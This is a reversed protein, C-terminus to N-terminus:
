LKLVYHSSSSLSIAGPSFGASRGTCAGVLYSNVILRLVAFARPMSIGDVRSARASSTMSHPPLLEEHPETLISLSSGRGPGVPLPGTVTGVLHGQRAFPRLASCANGTKSSLSPSFERQGGERM